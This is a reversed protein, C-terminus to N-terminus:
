VADAANIDASRKCAGKLHKSVWISPEPDGHVSRLGVKLPSTEHKTFCRFGFQPKLFCSKVEVFALSLFQVLSALSEPNRM